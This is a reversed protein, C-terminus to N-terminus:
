AITFIFDKSTRTSGDPLTVTVRYRYTGILFSLTDITYRMVFPNSRYSGQRLGITMPADAVMVEKNATEIKITGVLFPLIPANLNFDYDYLPLPMLAVELPRAEPQRFKQDLPEFGLRISSLDDTCQWDDPYVWFRNCCQLLLGSLDTSDLDSHCLVGDTGIACETSASFDPLLCPNTPYWTWVDFYVDPVIADDPIDWLLTFRGAIPAGVQPDTGCDGAPIDATLQEIPSPYTSDSECPSDTLFTAVLNSPIVQTKYIEVKRIAYPDTLVGGRKFSTVLDVFNGRRAAIRPFTAM